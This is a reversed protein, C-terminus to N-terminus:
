RQWPRPPEVPAPGVALQGCVHGGRPGAPSAVLAPQASQWRIPSVRRGVAPEHHGTIQHSTERRRMGARPRTLAEHRKAAARLRERPRHGGQSRRLANPLHHLHDVDVLRLDLSAASLAAVALAREGGATVVAEAERGRVNPRVHNVPRLSPTVPVPLLGERRSRGPVGRKM